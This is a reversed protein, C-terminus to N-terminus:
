GHLGFTVLAIAPIGPVLCLDFTILYTEMPKRRLKITLPDPHGQRPTIAPIGPLRHAPLLAQRV